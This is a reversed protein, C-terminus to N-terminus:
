FHLLLYLWEMNMKTKQMFISHVNSQGSISYPWNLNMDMQGSCREGHEM